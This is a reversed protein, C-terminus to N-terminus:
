RESEALEEAAELKRRKRGFWERGVTAGLAVSFPASVLAGVVFWAGRSPVVPLGREATGLWEGLWTNPFGGQVLTVHPGSRVIWISIAITVLVAAIELIEEYDPVTIRRLPDLRGSRYQRATWRFGLHVLTPATLAIGTLLWSAGSGIDCEGADCIITDDGTRAHVQWVAILTALAVLPVPLWRSTTM